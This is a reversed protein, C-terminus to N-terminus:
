HKIIKVGGTRVGGSEVSLVDRLVLSVPTFPYTKILLTRRGVNTLFLRLSHKSGVSFRVPIEKHFLTPVHFVRAGGPNSESVALGGIRDLKLIFADAGGASTPNYYGM